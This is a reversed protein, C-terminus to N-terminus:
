QEFGRESGGNNESWTQGAGAEYLYIQYGTIILVNHFVITIYTRSKEESLSIEYVYGGTKTKQCETIHHDM